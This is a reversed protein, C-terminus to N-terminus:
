RRSFIFAEVLKIVSKIKENWSRCHRLFVLKIRRGITRARM